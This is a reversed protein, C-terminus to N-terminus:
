RHYKYGKSTEPLSEVHPDDQVEGDIHDPAEESDGHIDMSKKEKPKNVRPNAAKSLLFHVRPELANLGKLPYRRYEITEMEKAIDRCQEPSVMGAVFRLHGGRKLNFSHEQIGDKCAKVESLWIEEPPGYKGNEQVRRRHAICRDGGGRRSSDQPKGAKKSTPKHEETAKRKEKPSTNPQARTKDESVVVNQQLYRDADVPDESTFIPPQSAMKLPKPQTQGESSVAQPQHAMEVEMADVKDEYMEKPQSQMQDEGAIAQKECGDENKLDECSKRLALRTSQRVPLCPEKPPTTKIARKEVVPGRFRRNGRNDAKPSPRRKRTAPRKNEPYFKRQLEEVSKDLDPKLEEFSRRLGSNANKPKALVKDLRQVVDEKNL